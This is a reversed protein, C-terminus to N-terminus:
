KKPALTVVVLAAKTKPQRPEFGVPRGELNDHFALKLTNSGRAFLMWGSGSNAPEIATLQFAKPDAKSDLQLAFRANGKQPSRLVLESGQFTWQGELLSRDGSAKGDVAAELVAWSGQLEKLLSRTRPNDIPGGTPAPNSPQMPPQEAYHTRGAGDQWKHLQEFKVKSTLLAKVVSQADEPSSVFLEMSPGTMLERIFPQSRLKGGVVIRGQKNLNLRTFTALDASKEPTLLVTLRAPGSTSIIAETIDGPSLSFTADDPVQARLAPAEALSLMALLLIAHLVRKRFPVTM